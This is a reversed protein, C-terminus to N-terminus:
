PLPVRWDSPITGVGDASGDIRARNVSRGGRHRWGVRSQVHVSQRFDIVSATRLSPPAGGTAPAARASDILIPRMPSPAIRDFRLHAPANPNDYNDADGAAGAHGTGNMAYTRTMRAAYRQVASPCVLVSRGKFLENPDRGDEGAFRQVVLGWNPLAAYPEGIAPGYGRSEDAYARCATFSQRLNSLCVANRSSERATALSPAVIALLLGIVGVVVM